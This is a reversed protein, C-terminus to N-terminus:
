HLLNEIEQRMNSAFASTVGSGGKKELGANMGNDNRKHNGNINIASTASAFNSYKNNLDATSKM